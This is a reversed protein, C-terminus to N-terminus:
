TLRGKTHTQEYLQALEELKELIGEVRTKMDRLQQDLIEELTYGTNTVVQKCRDDWLEAMGLDKEHTVQLVQGLHRQCWREIPILVSDLSDQNVALSAPAVRATFIRVDRGEAIWQKVRAVMVPLPAGLHDKGQWGHYEVLTGDLDVGIWGM